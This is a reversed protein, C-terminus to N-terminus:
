VRVPDRRLRRRRMPWAMLHILGGGLIFGVVAAVLGESTTPVAPEYAQYARAAIKPDFDEALVLVSGVPGAKAFDGCQKELRDRRVIADRMQDGRQQVFRDDSQQLHTIGQAEDMGSQAAETDFREILANLEDIAGGLRQRYQQAYEPVQSAVIGFFLGILVAIRRLFMPGPGQRDRQSLRPMLLPNMPTKSPFSLCSWWAPLVRHRGSCYGSARRGGPSRPSRPRTRRRAGCGCKPTTRCDRWSSGATRMGSRSSASRHICPSARARPTACAANAHPAAWRDTARASRGSSAPRRGPRRSGIATARGPSHARKARIAPCGCTSATPWAGAM